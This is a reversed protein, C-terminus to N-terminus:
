ALARLEDTTPLRRKDDANVSHEYRDRAAAVVTAPFDAPIRSWRTQARLWDTADDIARDGIRTRGVLPDVEVAARVENMLESLDPRRFRM